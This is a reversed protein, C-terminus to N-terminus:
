NETTQILTNPKKLTQNLSNIRVRYDKMQFVILDFNQIVSASVKNAFVIKRSEM